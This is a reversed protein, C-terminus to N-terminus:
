GPFTSVFFHILFVYMQMDMIKMINDSVFDDVVNCLFQLMRPGYMNIIKTMSYLWCLNATARSLFPVACHNINALITRMKILKLQYSLVKSIYYVYIIILIETDQRQHAFCWVELHNNMNLMGALADSAATEIAM